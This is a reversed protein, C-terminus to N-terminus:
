SGHVAHIWIWSPSSSRCSPFCQSVSLVAFGYLFKHISHDSLLSLFACFVLIQADSANNAIRRQVNPILIFCFILDYLIQTDYFGSLSSSNSIIIRKEITQKRFSRCLPSLKLESKLTHLFNGVTASNRERERLMRCFWISIFSPLDVDNSGFSSWIFFRSPWFYYGISFHAFRTKM